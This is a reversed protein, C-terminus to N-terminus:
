QRAARPTDLPVGLGAALRTWPVCVLYTALLPWFSIGLFWWTGLHFLAGGGLVPWRLRRVIALPAALEFGLVLASLVACAAPVSALRVGWEVRSALLYFQLTSGDAWALGSALLKAMGAKWYYGALVVVVLEIPWRADPSRVEAPRGRLRARASLVRDCPSLALFLIAYLLPLTAHTVKGLSDVWAEQV